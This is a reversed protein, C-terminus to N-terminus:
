HKLGNRQVALGKGQSIATTENCKEERIIENKFGGYEASARGSSIDITAQKADPRGITLTLLPLTNVNVLPLTTGNASNTTAANM